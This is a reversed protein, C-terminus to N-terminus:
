FCDVGTAEVSWSWLQKALKENRAIRSPVVVKPAGRLELVRPGVYSGSPLDPLTAAYLSPWAGAAASQAVLRTGIALV